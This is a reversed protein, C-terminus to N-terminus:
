LFLGSGGLTLRFVVYSGVVLCFGVVAAVAGRYDNRGPAVRVLLIGVFVLWSLIAWLVKPDSMQLSGRNEVTWWWGFALALTLCLFGAWLGVRGLRDLIALPPIFEFFRGLRKEKLEHHQILYLIGAAFAVALGQYGLFALTVHLIFGTGQFDLAMPSPRIGVVIAVGQVVLIFPLLALALRSAERVGQIIVVGLGGVLALSSLAAGPGVLPLEDYRMWFAVLAFAHSAVALTTVITAARVARGRLGALLCRVWLGFAFLYLLFPLLHIV